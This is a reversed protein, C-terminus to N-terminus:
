EHDEGTQKLIHQAMAVNSPHGPKVAIIHGRLRCGLLYLDGVIDLMKHRVLEDPYRMGDRSLIANKKIVVANDLSGGRILNAAMLAEIEEYLCFTRAQCLENEFTEANIEMSQYQCDLAIAGYKVTCSIKFTPHPVAILKTDGFELFLPRDIEIFRRDQDQAETGTKKIMEVFPLSSGDAVPPEPGDMEVLANDVGFANLSALIHEVTHVSAPGTTITTGRQTGTVNSAHALVEPSGPLDTRRFLIGTDAPAPRMTLNVRDGTHLAIGSISASGGLTRQKTENM